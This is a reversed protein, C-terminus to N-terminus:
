IKHKYKIIIKNRHSTNQTRELTTNHKENIQKASHLIFINVLLQRNLTITKKM